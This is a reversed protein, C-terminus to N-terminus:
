RDTAEPAGAVEGTAGRQESGGNNDEVLGVAVMWDELLSNLDDNLEKTACEAVEEASRDLIAMLKDIKDPSAGSFLKEVAEVVRARFYGARAKGCEEEYEAEAKHYEAQANLREIQRWAFNILDRQHEVQQVMEWGSAPAPQTAPANRLPGELHRVRDRLAENERVLRQAQEPAANRLAAVERELAQM